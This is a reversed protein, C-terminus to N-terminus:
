RDRRITVQNDITHNGIVVSYVSTNSGIYSARIHTSHIKGYMTFCSSYKYYWQEAQVEIICENTHVLLSWLEEYYVVM